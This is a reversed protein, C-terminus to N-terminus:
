LAEDLFFEVDRWFIPWSPPCDNHACDYTILRGNQAAGAMIINRYLTDAIKPQKLDMAAMAESAGFGTVMKNPRAERQDGFCLVQIHHRGGDCREM